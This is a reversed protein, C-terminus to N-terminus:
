SIAASEKSCVLMMLNTDVDGWHVMEFLGDCVRVSEETM